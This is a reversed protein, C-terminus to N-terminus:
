YKHSARRSRRRQRRILIKMQRVAKPARKRSSKKKPTEAEFPESHTLTVM